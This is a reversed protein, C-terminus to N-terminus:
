SKEFQKCKVLLRNEGDETCTILALAHEGEYDELAATQNPAITEMSYVEYEYTEGYVDMLRVTEGAELEDLKGFQSGNRYNHGVIAINGADQPSGPGAYLCPATALADYDYEAFVPLELGIAEITLRGMVPRGAVDELVRARSEVPSPEPQPTTESQPLTEPQPTAALPLPPAESQQHTVEPLPAAPPEPANADFALFGAWIACGALLLLTGLWLPAKLRAARKTRYHRGRNDM